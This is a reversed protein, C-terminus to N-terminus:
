ETTALVNALVNHAGVPGVTAFKEDINIIAKFTSSTGVEAGTFDVTISIDEETMQAIDASPGRLTVTLMETVIDAEMGEPVNISSIESINFKRTSLGNFRVSVQVESVNSENTVGDPLRIAYTLDQDEAIESLNLRGLLYEGGLSELVAESGSVRISAHSLEIVTNESTAGGGYVVDLKLTVEAVRQIKVDVRVEEVNTTILEADVANGEADCLTYRYSQSISERQENLDVEIVAKEIQDAVSAPGVVSVTTYDLVCNERDSMFGEPTAGIWNIEVPVEKTRREEVTVYITDPSKKETVIANQAVDGPFTISYTLPIMTGAEYIKSLDLKITVNGRNVKNLDTRNGSVELSVSETSISTLMLNRDTLAGEGELVVPINSITNTSGPSVSSIVYMWIGFAIVVSILISTLKNRM